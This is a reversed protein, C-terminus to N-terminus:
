DNEASIKSKLFDGLQALYIAVASRVSLHNYSDAAPGVIPDLQEDGLEFVSPHLGWGTGFVLLLNKESRGQNTMKWHSPACERTLLEQFSITKPGRQAATTITCPRQGNTSHESAIMEQVATLSPALQVLSLASRRKSNYIKGEEGDWHRLIKQVLRVQLELPTVIFYRRVGFTRCSRAIDHIDLNTVSTTIVQQDKSVIPHHILAVDLAWSQLSSSPSSTLSM